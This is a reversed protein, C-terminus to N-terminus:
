MDVWMQAGEAYLQLTSNFCRFLHVSGQSNTYSIVINGSEAHKVNLDDYLTASYVKDLCQKIENESAVSRSPSSISPTGEKEKGSNKIFFLCVFLVGLISWTINSMSTSVVPLNVCRPKGGYKVHCEYVKGYTKEDMESIFSSSDSLTFEVYNKKGIVEQKNISVIEDFPIKNIKFFGSVLFPGKVEWLTNIFAGKIVKVYM